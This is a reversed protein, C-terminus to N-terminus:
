PRAYSELFGCKTCRETTIAIKPINKTKINGLWNKEPEGEYWSSSLVAGYSFDPIFGTEMEGNCKPCPV